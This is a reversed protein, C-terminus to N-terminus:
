STIKKAETETLVTDYIRLDFVKGKFNNGSGSQRAFDLRSLSSPVSGSTDTNALVGNVFLKFENNKFTFCMKNRTEFNINATMNVVRTGLVFVEMRIQTNSTLFHWFIRNATTGDGLTINQSFNSKSPSVDIFFSGQTINFLTSNGAQTYEDKNRTEAQNVTKIYSTSSGFGEEFQVGWVYAFAAASTDSDDIVGSTFRPSLHAIVFPANDTNYSVSLRYWGEGYDEVKSSTITFGSGGVSTTLTESSFQFIADARNPYNGQMRFTFFDGEGQKVFLSSSADLQTNSSKSVSSNIYSPSTSTRQVKDATLEGTPATTQDATATVNVKSWVANSLEESRTQKNTAAKELLFYPCDSGLYNLKATNPLVTEILGDKRVRSATTSRNYNFDGIGNNPLISYVKATNYGSPILALIPNTM